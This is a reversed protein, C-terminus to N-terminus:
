RVIAAARREIWNSDPPPAAQARMGVAQHTAKSECSHIRATYNGILSTICCFSVIAELIYVWKICLGK